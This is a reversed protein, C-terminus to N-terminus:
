RAKARVEETEIISLRTHPVVILDTNGSKETYVPSPYKKPLMMGQELGRRTTKPNAEIRVQVGPALNEAMQNFEIFDKRIDEHRRGMTVKLFHFTAGEDDLEVDPKESCTVLPYSENWRWNGCRPDKAKVKICRKVTLIGEWPIDKKPIPAIVKKTIVPAEEAPPKAFSWSGLKWLIGLAIIAAVIISIVVIWVTRM